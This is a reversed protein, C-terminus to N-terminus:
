PPLCAPPRWQTDPTAAIHPHKAFTVLLHAALDPDHLDVDVIYVALIDPRALTLVASTFTSTRSPPPTLKCRQSALATLAAIPHAIPARDADTETPADAARRKDVPVESLDLKLETLRLSPM